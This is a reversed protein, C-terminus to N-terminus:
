EDDSHVHGAHDHDHGGFSETGMGGGWDEMSSEIEEPSQGSDLRDVLEDFQPPMEEGSAKGLERFMKAMARPDDEVGALKSPDALAEAHAENGKLVRVRNIKRRVNDSGCHSCTVPKSGYDKYSIFVDFRKRCNLCTFDYTPMNLNYHMSAPRQLGPFSDFHAKKFNIQAPTLQTKIGNGSFFALKIGHYQIMVSIRLSGFARTLGNVRIIIKDITDAPVSRQHESVGNIEGAPLALAFM